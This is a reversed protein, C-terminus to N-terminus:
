SRYRQSIGSIFNRLSDKWFPVEVGIKKIKEKSLVSYKPRKVKTPYDETKIPKINCNEKLIEYERGLRYIELAFDYWSIEGENSYHYIGIPQKDKSLNIMQLIAIALDYTWTPSGFQDSVVSIEKRENMLKLMTYVFNNGFEGYLWSTRIIISEPFISLLRKEGELKTRGYISIPSTPDDELYPRPKGNEIISEGSFVYDTSIHIVTAGIQKGVKGINEVGEVNIATCLEVEDEAKDVATYAACNVIFKITRNRAFQFLTEHDTISIEKDTAIFPVSISKFMESLETGLMGRAGIIWIM